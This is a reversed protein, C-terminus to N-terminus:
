AAELRLFKDAEQIACSELYALWEGRSLYRDISAHKSQMEVWEAESMAKVAKIADIYIRLRYGEKTRRNKM